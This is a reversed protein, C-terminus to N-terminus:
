RIGHYEFCYQIISFHCSRITFVIHHFCSFWFLVSPRCCSLLVSELLLSYRYLPFLFCKSKSLLVLQWNACFLRSQGDTNNCKCGGWIGGIVIGCTSNQQQTVCAYVIRGSRGVVCSMKTHLFAVISFEVLYMWVLTVHLFIYPLALGTFKPICVRLYRHLLVKCVRKKSKLSTVEWSISAVTLYAIKRM